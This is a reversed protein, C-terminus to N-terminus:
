RMMEQEMPQQIVEKHMEAAQERQARQKLYEQKKAEIAAADRTTQSEFTPAARGDGDGKGTDEDWKIVEPGVVTEYQCTCAWRTGAAGCTAWKSCQAQWRGDCEEGQDVIGDGCVNKVEIICAKSCGDNDSTNGDDCQETWEIIGNWCISEPPTCHCKSSCTSWPIPCAYVSAGDCSEIDQNVVGDGCFPATCVWIVEEQRKCGTVQNCTTSSTYNCSLNEDTSVKVCVAPQYNQCTWEACGGADGGCQDGIQGISWDSDSCALPDQQLLNNQWILGHSNAWDRMAQSYDSRADLLNNNSFSHIGGAFGYFLDIKPKQFNLFSSPILGCLNNNYLFLNELNSLQGLEVPIPGSLQNNWLDLRELKSLQGLEVPIPGSFQNNWLDLIELKSLQGLEVLIPGSFQNDWLGLIELKSLQGLEVPIPGSLQNDGLNLHKLKSLQGLEVPIPGTLQQNRNLYLHELKSLQGLEAPIPGSLNCISLNLQKLNSLQGLEAPIPGSLYGNFQVNFYELQSLDGLKTPLTGSLWVERLSLRTVHGNNVTVGYWTSAPKSMDLWNDKRNWNAGNTSNYLAVLAECEIVPIGITDCKIPVSISQTDFSEGTGSATSGTDRPACGVVLIATMLAVASVMLSKQKYMTYFIFFLLTAYLVLLVRVISFFDYFAFKQPIKKSKKSKRQM